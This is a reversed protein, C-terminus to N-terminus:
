ADLRLEVANHGFVGSWVETAPKWNWRFAQGGDLSERLSAATFRHSTLQFVGEDTPGPEMIENTTPKAM